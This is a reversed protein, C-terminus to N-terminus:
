QDLTWRFAATGSELVQCKQSDFKKVSEGRGSISTATMSDVEFKTQLHCWNEVKSKSGTQSTWPMYSLSTGVWKKGQRKCETRMFAGHAAWVAPVNLWEARFVDGDLTVRFQKGTTQSVWMDKIRGTRTRPYPEANTGPKLDQGSYGMMGASLVGGALVM